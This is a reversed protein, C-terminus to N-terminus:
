IVSLGPDVPDILIYADYTSQVPTLFLIPKLAYGSEMALSFLQQAILNSIM